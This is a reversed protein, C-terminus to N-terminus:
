TDLCFLDYVGALLKFLVYFYRAALVSVTTAKRALCLLCLVKKGNKFTIQICFLHKTYTTLTIGILSFDKFVKNSKDTDSM